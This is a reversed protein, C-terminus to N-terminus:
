GAPGCRRALLRRPLMKPDPRYQKVKIWVDALNEEHGAGEAYFIGTGYIM